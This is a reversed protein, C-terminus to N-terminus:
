AADLARGPPCSPPRRTRTSRTRPSSQRPPCRRRTSKPYVAASAIATPSDCVLPWSASCCTADRSARASSWPPSGRTGPGATTSTPSTCPSGSCPTTLLAAGCRPPAPRRRRAPAGVGGVEALRDRCELDLLEASQFVRNLAPGLVPPLLQPTANFVGILVSGYYAELHPPQPLWFLHAFFSEVVLHRYDFPLPLAFLRRVVESPTDHFFLFLDAIQESAVARDAATLERNLEHDAAVLRCEPRPSFRAGPAAPRVVHEVSLRHLPGSKLLREMELQPQQLARTRWGSSEGCERVAAWLAGLPEPWMRADSFAASLVGPERERAEMREDIRRLLTALGEPEARQLVRGGNPLAAIAAYLHADGGADVMQHLLRAADGPAVVCAAALECIFQLLRRALHTHAAQLAAQLELQVREVLRDVFESARVNLLGLLAAYVGLKGPLSSVCQMLVEEVVGAAPADPGVDLLLTQALQELTKAEGKDGARLLQEQLRKRTPDVAAPEDQPSQPPPPPPPPGQRRDRGGRGGRWGGGDERPPRMSFYDRPANAGAAARPRTWDDDDAAAM